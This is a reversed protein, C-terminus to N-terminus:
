FEKRFGPLERQILKHPKSPLASNRNKQKIYGKVPCYQTLKFLFALQASYNM